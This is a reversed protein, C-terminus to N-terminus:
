TEDLGTSNRWTKDLNTLAKSSPAQQLKLSKGALDKVAASCRSSPRGGRKSGDRAIFFSKAAKAAPLSITPRM